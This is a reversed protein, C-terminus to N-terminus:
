GIASIRLTSEFPFTFPMSAAPTFPATIFSRLNLIPLPIPSSAM